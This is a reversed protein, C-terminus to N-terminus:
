TGETPSVRDTPLLSDQRSGKRQEQIFTETKGHLLQVLERLESTFVTWQPLTEENLPNKEWLATIEKEVRDAEKSGNFQNM